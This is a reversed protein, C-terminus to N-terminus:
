APREPPFESINFDLYYVPEEDLERRSRQREVEAFRDDTLDSFRRNMNRIVIDVTRGPGVPRSLALESVIRNLDFFVEASAQDPPLNRDGDAGKHHLTTAEIPAPGLQRDIDRLIERARAFARAAPVYRGFGSVSARQLRHAGGPRGSLEGDDFVFLSPMSLDFGCEPFVLRLRHDDYIFQHPEDLGWGTSGMPGPSPPHLRGLASRAVVEDVTDGLGAVIRPLPGAAARCAPLGGLAVGCLAFITRRSLDNTTM